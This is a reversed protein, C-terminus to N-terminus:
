RTAYDERRVIIFRVGELGSDLNVRIQKITLNDLGTKKVYRNMVAAATARHRFETKTLGMGKREKTTGDNTMIMYYGFPMANDIWM